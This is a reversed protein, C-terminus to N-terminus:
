AVESRRVIGSRRVVSHGGPLKGDLVAQAQENRVRGDDDVLHFCRAAARVVAAFGHVRVLNEWGRRQISDPDGLDAILGLFLLGNAPLDHRAPLVPASRRIGTADLYPTSDSM